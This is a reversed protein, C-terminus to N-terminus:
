NEREVDAAFLPVQSDGPSRARQRQYEQGHDTLRWAALSGKREPVMELYGQDRLRYFEMKMTNESRIGTMDRAQRNAITDHSELFELILVSPSALPIHPIIAKVVNNEEFIRPDKLKWEKMKQFATNLGEGLDKNPADKYRALTRVLKPNRSYRVDLLNDATVFAPFKGPSIIEIRDNFILIQVDDSISYDRHILANVVIEWIAEPPYSISKLGSTTWVRISSMAATVQAVSEHIVNYLPGEISMPTGSLHDREPSDERTEYRAIRVSCKRPVVSAPNPHFLLTGCVKLKWSARDVLNQNVVFELADSKPSYDALFDAIPKGDVVEDVAIGDIAADEFSSAGKAFALETIKEPERVPISQAGVRVYVTDDSTKHVQNSKEITVILVVGPKGRCSVFKYQMPITPSLEYLAQLHGNFFEPDNGGEWRLEVTPEDSDDRIGVVLDGGETNAFAVAHKQLKRPQIERSKRDFYTGEVKFSLSMADEIDIEDIDL